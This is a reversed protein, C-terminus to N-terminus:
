EYYYVVLNRADSLELRGALKDSVSGDNKYFRFTDQAGTDLNILADVTYSKGKLYDVVANTGDLLTAAQPKHIIFHEIESKSNKAVVLFRRERPTSSSNSGLKVKNKYALLHTQFVTLKEEKAWDIFAEIGTYHTMNFTKDTGSGSFTVSGDKLNVVDVEGNPYVAVLADLSGKKMSNNVVTGYDITLGVLEAYAADLESMYAGSSYCIVNKNKSWELYRDGVSKGDIEDAFYKARVRMGKRKLRVIKFSEGNHTKETFNALTIDYIKESQSYGITTLFLSVLLLAAKKM